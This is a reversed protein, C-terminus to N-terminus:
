MFVIMCHRLFTVVKDQQFDSVRSDIQVIKPV